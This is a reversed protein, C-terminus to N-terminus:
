PLKTICGNQIDIVDHHMYGWKLRYSGVWCAVFFEFDNIKAMTIRM